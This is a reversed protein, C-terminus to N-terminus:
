RTIRAGVAVLALARSPETIAAIEDPSAGADEALHRRREVSEETVTLRGIVEAQAGSADMPFTLEEVEAEGEAHTIVRLTRGDGDAFTLWCGRVQCVQRITGEVRVTQGNLEDARAIVGAVPLFAGDSFDGVVVPGEAAPTASASASAGAARPAVTDSTPACASLATLGALAPLLLARM